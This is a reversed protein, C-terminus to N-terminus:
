VTGVKIACAILKAKELYSGIEPMRPVYMYTHCIDFTHVIAFYLLICM